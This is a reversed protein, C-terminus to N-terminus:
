TLWVSSSSAIKQASSDWLVNWGSRSLVELVNSLKHLLGVGSDLAFCQLLIDFIKTKGVKAKSVFSLANHVDNSRLLAERQRAGSNDASVAMCRGMACKTGQSKANARTLNFM